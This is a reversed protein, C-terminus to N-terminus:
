QVAVKILSDCKTLASNIVTIAAMHPVNGAIMHMNRTGVARVRTGALVPHRWGVM